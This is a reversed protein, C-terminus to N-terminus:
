HKTLLQRQSLGLHHVVVGVSRDSCRRLLSSVLFPCTRASGLNVHFVPLPQRSVASVTNRTRISAYRHQDVRNEPLELPARIVLLLTM